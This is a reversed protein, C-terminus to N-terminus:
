ARVHTVERTHPRADPEGAPRAALMADIERGALRAWRGARPLPILGGRPARLALGHVGGPIPTYAADLGLARARELAWESVEPRVGPLGPSRADLTGHLLRLRRGELRRLDVRPPLWAALGVVGAIAPDDGVSVAVAGGLSFGVAVRAPTGMARLAALALRGDAVCDELRQWSSHRYRVEVIGTAGGRRVALRRALWETTPSWRGAVDRHTSGGFLVVSPGDAAGRLRLSPGDPLDLVRTDRRSARRGRPHRPPMTLADLGKM